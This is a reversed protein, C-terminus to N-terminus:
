LSGGYSLSDFGVFRVLYKNVENCFLSMMVIPGRGGPSCLRYANPTKSSIPETIYVNRAIGLLNHDGLVKHRLHHLSDAFFLFTFLNKVLRSALYAPSM